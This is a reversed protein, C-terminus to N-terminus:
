YNPTPSILIEEINKLLRASFFSAVVNGYSNTIIAMMILGPAIYQMYTFGHMNGIRQGIFNGFIIFYLTTTVLPPLITQIWIRSFRVVEKIVITKLSIYTTEIM